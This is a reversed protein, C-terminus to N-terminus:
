PSCGHRKIGFDRGKIKAMRGNPHDHWVIGEISCDTLYSKLADFTRPVRQLVCNAHRVLTHRPEQEPNGQIKPGILEYTGDALGGCMAMCYAWAERHWQDGPDSQSVPVWGWSKLTASDVETVPEFGEPLPKVPNYGWFNGEFQEFLWKVEARKWLRGDRVLCCTGDYKKTAQGLGEVVWECGPTVQDIARGDALRVFLTPIKRM